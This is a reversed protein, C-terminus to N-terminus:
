VTKRIIIVNKLKNSLRFLTSVLEGVVGGSVFLVCIAKQCPSFNVLSAFLLYAVALSIGLLARQWGPHTPPFFFPFLVM